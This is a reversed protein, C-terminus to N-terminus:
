IGRKRHCQIESLQAVLAPGFFRERATYPIRQYPAPAQETVRQRMRLRMEGSGPSIKKGCRRRWKLLHRNSLAQQLSGNGKM